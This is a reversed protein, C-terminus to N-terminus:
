NRFAAYACFDILYNKAAKFETLSHVPTKGQARKLTAEQLGKYYAENIDDICIPVSPKLNLIEYYERKPTKEPPPQPEVFKTLHVTAPSDKQTLWKIIRIFLILTIFISGSSM